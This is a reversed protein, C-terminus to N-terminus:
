STVNTSVTSVPGLDDDVGCAGSPPAPAAPPAPAPAPAATYAERGVSTRAGSVPTVVRTAAGSLQATPPSTQTLAAAPSANLSAVDLVPPAAVGGPTCAL